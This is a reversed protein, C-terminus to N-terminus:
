TEFKLQRARITKANHCKLIQFVKRAIKYVLLADMIRTKIEFALIEVVIEHKVTFNEVTKLQACTFVILM